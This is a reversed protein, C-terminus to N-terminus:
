SKKMSLTKVYNKMSYYKTKKSIGWKSMVDKMPMNETDSLFELIKDDTWNIRTSKEPSEKKSTDEQNTIEERTASVENMSDGLVSSDLNFTTSVQSVLKETFESVDQDSFKPTNNKSEMYAISKIISEMTDYLKNLTIPSYHLGQHISLAVDVKEMTSPPLTGIYEFRYDKVNTDFSRIQECLIINKEDRDNCFEVHTPFDKKNTSSTIPVATIMGSSKNYIGLSLVLWPRSLNQEHGARYNKSVYLNWVQGREYKIM